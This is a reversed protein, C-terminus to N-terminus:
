SGEMIKQVSADASTVMSNDVVEKTTLSSGFSYNSFYTSGAVASFGGDINVIESIQRPGYFSVTWRVVLRYYLVQLKSPPMLICAVYFPGIDPVQTFAEYPVGGPSGDRAVDENVFGPAALIPKQSDNLRGSLVSTAFAPLPKSNGRIPKLLNKFEVTGTNSLTHVLNQDRPADPGNWAYNYLQEFCIPVLDTMSMGQQPVAVRWGDRNSLIGYYAPFEDAEPTVGDVTGIVSQGEFSQTGLLGALRSEITSMSENSVAKFLIPNMMDAPAISGVETGIQQPDAPLVSACSMAVDCKELKMMKYNLFFGPYMKRIFAIPPTKIGLLSMKNPKTALDYTESVTVTVM